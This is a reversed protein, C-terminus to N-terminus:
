KAQPACSTKLVDQTKQIEDNIQNQDLYSFKGDAGVLRIRQGSQLAKLRDQAIKCNEDKSAQAPAAAGDAPPADTTASPEPESSADATKSSTGMKKADMGTVPKESFHTVGKDDVWKYYQGAQSISATLALAGVLVRAFVQLAVPKGMSRTSGGSLPRPYRLDFAAMFRRTNYL